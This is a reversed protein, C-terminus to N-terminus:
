RRSSPRSRRCHAGGRHRGADRVVAHHDPRVGARGRCHGPASGRVVGAVGGAVGARCLGRAHTHRGGARGDRRARLDGSHDRQRRLVTHRRLRRAAATSAQAGAQRRGRAHGAGDAGPRRGRRPQRRAPDPDRVQADRRADVGLLHLVGRRRPPGPGAARRDGPRVSGQRHVAPQHRHRRLRRRDRRSDRRGMRASPHRRGRGAISRDGGPRRSTPEDHATDPLPQLRSRSRLRM